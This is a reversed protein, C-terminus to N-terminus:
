FLFQGYSECTLHRLKKSKAYTHLAFTPDLSIIPHQIELCPPAHLIELPKLHNYYTTINHMQGFKHNKQKTPTDLRCSLTTM